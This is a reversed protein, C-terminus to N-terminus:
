KEGFAHLADVADRGEKGLTYKYPDIKAKGKAKGKGAKSKAKPPRGRKNKKPLPTAERTLDSAYKNACATLTAELDDGDPVCRGTAYATSSCFSGNYMICHVPKGCGLVCTSM